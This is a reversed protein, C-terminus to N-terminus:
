NKRIQQLYEWDDRHLDDQEYDEFDELFGENGSYPLTYFSQLEDGNLMAVQYEANTLFVNGSHFNMMINVDIDDFDNPLGQDRWANLLDTAMERERHGFDSLNTTTIQKM